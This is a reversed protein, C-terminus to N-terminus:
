KGRDGSTKDTKSERAAVGPKVSGDDQPVAIPAVKVNAVGKDRTIGVKRATSPSLDVIRGKRHPGRDQITVVASQGTEVNTVKATTGLPLTKSAANDDQPDMKTGDAMKKGTFKKAYFSAKGVRERGSQDMPKAPSTAQRSSVSEQPAASEAARAHLTIGAAVAGVSWSMLLMAFRIFPSIEPM